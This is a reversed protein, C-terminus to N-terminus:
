DLSRCIKCCLVGSCLMAAVALAAVFVGGPIVTEGLRAFVEGPGRLYIASLQRFNARGEFGAYLPILKAFYTLTLIYVGLVLFAKAMWRGANAGGSFGKMALLFLGPLLGASYWANANPFVGGFATGFLVMAYILVPLFALTGGLVIWCAPERWKDRLGRLFFAFGAVLLLLMLDLTTRSFTTFSNNSNWLAAHAMGRLASPWSASWFMNMVAQSPIARVSAQLGTLSGYLLLNRAYWPGAVAGVLGAFLWIRKREARLVIGVALPVFVLFYAKTLLGAALVMAFLIVTRTGPKRWFREAALFLAPILPVSAWDNAVHAIAGFLNQTMLLLFVAAAIYSPRVGMSQGLRAAVYILLALSVCVCFLRLRYVMWPIPADPALWQLAVLPLYALPPQQAEYNLPGPGGVQSDMRLAYLEARMDRRTAADLGLYDRYNVLGPMIRANLHSAPALHM